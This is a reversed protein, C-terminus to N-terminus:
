FDSGYIKSGFLFPSLLKSAKRPKDVAVAVVCDTDDHTIESLSSVEIKGSKLISLLNQNDLHPMKLVLSDEVLTFNNQKLVTSASSPDKVEISIIAKGGVVDVCLGEININSKSLIYSIDALLGVRDPSVVTITKM